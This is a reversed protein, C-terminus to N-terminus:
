QSVESRYAIAITAYLLIVGRMQPYKACLHQIMPMDNHHVASIISRRISDSLDAITM